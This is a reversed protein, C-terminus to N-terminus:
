KSLMHKVLIPRETFQNLYIAYPNVINTEDYPYFSDMRVNHARLLESLGMEYHKIIETKSRIRKVGLIFDKFYDETFVSRDLVLFYSQLHPNKTWEYRHKKIKKGFGYTAMCMAYAEAKKAKNFIEELDSNNGVFDVSDNCILLSDIKDLIKHELLYQYGRKYSGFDYERHRKIIICDCLTKLKDLTEPLAKSDAVYVIFDCFSRLSKLYLLTNDSVLGDKTFSAFLCARNYKYEINEAKTVFMQVELAKAPFKPKTKYKVSVSMGLVTNVTRGNFKKVSFLKELPTLELTPVIRQEKATKLDEKYTYKSIASVANKNFCLRENVAFAVKCGRNLLYQYLAQTAFHCNM